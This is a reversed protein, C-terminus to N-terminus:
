ILSRNDNLLLEYEDVMRQLRLNKTAYDFANSSMRFRDDTNLFVFSEIANCISLPSLPDCLFGRQGNGLLEPHDCVNSAIVPRSSAFAECVANPLGEFLSVHILAHSKALLSKIDYQEGLFYWGKAIDPNKILLSEMKKRLRLSKSDAEQRGVWLLQPVFGNRKYFIIFAELLRLPNKQVCVRGISVFTFHGDVPPPDSRIFTKADYGNYITKIRNRLWRHRGLLRAQSFSNTTIFSAYGYALLNLFSRPSFNGQPKSNRASCILRVESGSVLKAISSYICPSELFAIAADFNHNRYLSCLLRIRNLSPILSNPAHHVVVSADRLRSLFFNEEPHYTFFHVAHGNASLGCALNVIQMQAGGSGLSDIVCLVKM